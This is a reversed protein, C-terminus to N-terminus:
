IGKTTIILYQRYERHQATYEKKKKVFLLNIELDQIIVLNYNGRPRITSNQVLVNKFFMTVTMDIICWTDQSLTNPPDPWRKICLQKFM